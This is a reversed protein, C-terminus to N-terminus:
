RTPVPCTTPIVIKLYRVLMEDRGDFRFRIVPITALTRYLTRRLAPNFVDIEHGVSPSGIPDECMPLAITDHFSVGAPLPDTIVPHAAYVWTQISSRSRTDCQAARAVSYRPRLTRHRAVVTRGTSRRIVGKLDAIGYRNPDLAADFKFGVITKVEGYRGPPTQGFLSTSGRDRAQEVNNRMERTWYEDHGASHNSRYRSATLTANHPDISTAV